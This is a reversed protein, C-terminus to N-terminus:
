VNKKLEDLCKNFEVVMISKQHLTKSPLSTTVQILHLESLRFVGTDHQVEGRASVFDFGPYRPKRNVDLAFWFRVEHCNIECTEKDCVM